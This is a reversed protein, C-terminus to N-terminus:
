ATKYSNFVSTFSTLFLFHVFSCLVGVLPACKYPSFTLYLLSFFASCRWLSTVSKSNVLLHYNLSQRGQITNPDTPGM